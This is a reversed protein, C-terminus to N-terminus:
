SPSTPLNEQKKNILDRNIDDVRQEIPALLVGLEGEMTDPHYTKSVLQLQLNDVWSGFNSFGELEGLIIEEVSFNVPIATITGANLPNKYRNIDANSLVTSIAQDTVETNSKKDLGRRWANISATDTTRDFLAPNGGGVFYVDNILKRLTRSIVLSEVDEGRRYYRAVQTPRPQMYVINDGFDYRSFWGDPLLELVKALVEDVTNAKFTFNSQTGSLPMSDVTWTARSGRTRAFDIADRAIQIPDTNVYTVTTLGGGTWITMVMDAGTDVWGAAPSYTWANGGAYGSGALANLPWLGSGGTKYTDVSDLYIIYQQGSVIDFSAPFTFELTQTTPYSDPNYVLTADVTGVLSGPSAPNNGNYVSVRAGSNLTYDNRMQISVRSEKATNPATIVQAIRTTDSTSGSSEVARLFGGTAGAIVINATDKTEFMINAFAQSHSLYKTIVNEEGGFSLEFDSMFGTWIRKGLPFGTNVMILEDDETLVPEGSETLLEDFSGFSSYIEINNGVEVNTGPGVGSPSSIDALLDQDSETTLNEDSETALVDVSLEGTMENQDLTVDINSMLNNLAEKWTTESVVKSTHEGIFNDKNDFILHRFKKDQKLRHVSPSYLFGSAEGIASLINIYTYYIRVKIYDVQAGVTGGGAAYESADIVLEIGDITATAPLAFGFNSVKIYDTKDAGGGATTGFAIAIGFAPDNVDAGTLTQGFLSTSSGYTRPTTFLDANNGLDTGVITGAKILRIHRYTFHDAGALFGDTAYSGDALKVNNLNTWTSGGLVSQVVTQPYVYPTTAM